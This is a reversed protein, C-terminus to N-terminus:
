AGGPMPINSMQQLQPAQAGGGAQGPGLQPSAGVQSGQGLSKLHEAQEMWISLRRLVGVPANGSAHIKNWEMQVMWLGLDLAQYESPAPFQEEEDELLFITRQLDTVAADYLSYYAETDLTQVFYRYLDDAMRGAAREEELRQRLGAPTQPTSSSPLIRLRFKDRDMDVKSWEVDLLGYRPSNWTAKPMKGAANLEKALDVFWYGAEVFAGDFDKEQQGFRGDTYDIWSELAPKSDLGTPPRSKGGMAFESMGSIQFIQKIKRDEDSYIEQPVQAPVVFEPRRAGKSPIILGLDTTVAEELGADAWDVIIPPSVARNQLATIYAEHRNVRAQLFHVIEPVGIGYWGTLKRMWRIEVFPFSDYTWEEEFLAKGKIYVGHRGPTGRAPPKQWAEIVACTYPAHTIYSVWQESTNSASAWIEDEFEPYEACLEDVDVFRRHFMAKAPTTQTAVEDVIIELPIVRDAAIQDDLISLKTLGTGLSAGDAFSRRWAAGFKSSLMTGDLFQSLGKAQKRLSWDGGRTIVDLSPERTAIRANATEIVSQVANIRPLDPRRDNVRVWDINVGSLEEGTYLYANEFMRLRVASQREEIAQVYDFVMRPRADDEIDPAAWRHAARSRHDLISGM